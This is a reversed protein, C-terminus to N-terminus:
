KKAVRVSSEIKVELWKEFSGYLKTIALKAEDSILRLAEEYAKSFATTQAEKDFKGEAKLADVYIQNIYLVSDMVDSLAGEILKAVNENEVSESIINSEKIKAKILNVIYTAVVPLIVTLVTYLVYNFVENFEM